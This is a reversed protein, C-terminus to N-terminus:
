QHVDPYKMSAARERRDGVDVTDPTSGLAARGSAVRVRTKWQRELGERHLERLEFADVTPRGLRDLAHMFPEVGGGLVHRPLSLDKGAEGVPGGLGRRETGPLRAAGPPDRPGNRRLAADHFLQELRAGGVRRHQVAHPVRDAPPGIRVGRDLRLGDQQAPRTLSGPQPRPLGPLEAGGVAGPRGRIGLGRHGSGHGRATRRRGARDPRRRAPPPHAPGGRSRLLGRIGQHVVPVHALRPRSGALALPKSSSACAALFALAQDLIRAARSEDCEYDLVIRRCLRDFLAPDILDRGTQARPRRKLIMETEPSLRTYVLPLGRGGPASPRPATDRAAIAEAVGQIGSRILDGYPGEPLNPARQEAEDIHTEAAEFSALRRYDDALNLHLSPYFDAIRLGAHHAQVREDTAADAADLARINWALARAPDEYLDAMSHALACRHLSDGLAGIETWLELMKARAAAKDGTRGQMVAQGIAEMISDPDAPTETMPDLKRSPHSMEGRTTM